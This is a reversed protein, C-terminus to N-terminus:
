VYSVRHTPEQDRTETGAETSAGIAAVTTTGTVAATIPGTAVVTTTGTMDEVVFRTVERETTEQQRDPDEGTDQTEIV